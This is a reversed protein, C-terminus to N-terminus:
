FQVIYSHLISIVLPVLVLLCKRKFVIVLDLIAELIFLAVYHHQCEMGSSCFSINHGLELDSETGQHLASVPANVKLKTWVIEVLFLTELTKRFFYWGGTTSYYIVFSTWNTAFNLEEFRDWTVKKGFLDFFDSFYFLALMESATPTVKLVLVELTMKTHIKSM